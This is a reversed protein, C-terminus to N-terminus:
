LVLFIYLTKDSFL